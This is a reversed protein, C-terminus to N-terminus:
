ATLDLAARMGRVLAPDLVVRGDPLRVRCSSHVGSCRGLRLLDGVNGPRIGGGPMIEIRGAAREILRGIRGTSEADAACAGGGSTLVRVMGLAILQELGAIPDAFRDFARHFVTDASAARGVMQECLELDIEGRRTLGGFVVGSAGHALAADISAEMQSAEDNSYCFDGARPRIMVVFPLPSERGFASLTEIDPTLGDQDLAACLELRDAGARAAALADSLNEIPV